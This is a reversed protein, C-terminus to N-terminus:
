ETTTNEEPEVYPIWSLSEENWQWSGESPMPTPPILDYNVEDVTWSSYPNSAALNDLREQREESTLDRITWVDYCIGDIIKYEVSDLVIEDWKQPFPKPVRVFQCFKRDANPDLFNPNFEELNSKLYPHGIPEGDKIEIYLNFNSIM